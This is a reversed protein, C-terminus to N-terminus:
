SEAILSKSMIVSKYNVFPRHDIEEIFRYGRKRYFDILQTANESTDFALETAGHAQAEEEILTLLRSGIGQKQVTPDVAFQGFHAVDSRRYWSSSSDKWNVPYKYTVTGIIRKDNIAVYCRGGTIREKTQEETQHTAWYRMGADALPKYARHLLDTLEAISDSDNLFRVEIVDGNM